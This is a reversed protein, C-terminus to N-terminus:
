IGGAGPAGPRGGGSHMTPGGAMPARINTIVVFIGRRVTFRCDRIGSDARARQLERQSPSPRLAPRLMTRWSRAAESITFHGRSTLVREIESFARTVDTVYRLAGMCLVLDFSNDEFPLEEASCCEFSLRQSLAGEATAVRAMAILPESPDVGVVTAQRCASAVQIAVVGNGTGIELIRLGDTDASELRRTIMSAM